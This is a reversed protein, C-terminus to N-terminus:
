FRYRYVVAGIVALLASGGTVGVAIAIAKKKNSHSSPSPTSPTMTFPPVDPVRTPSPTPASTSPPSIGFITLGSDAIYLMNSVVASGAPKRSRTQLYATVRPAAPTEVDVALVTADSVSVYAITGSVSVDVAAASTAYMGALVPGSTNTFFDIILLGSDTAVYTMNGEVALGNYGSWGGPTFENVVEPASEDAVNFMLVADDGTAMYCVTGVVEVARGEVTGLQRGVVKRTATDIVVLGENSAVYATGGSSSLAVGLVGPVSVAGANAPVNSSVDFVVVSNVTGVVMTKGAVAVDYADAVGDRITGLPTAGSTVDYLLLGINSAVYARSDQVAVHRFVAALTATAVPASPDSASIMQLGTDKGVIAVYGTVVMSFVPGELGLSGLLAQAGDESTNYIKLVYRTQTRSVVYLLEDETSLCIIETMATDYAAVQTPNSPDSVDLNVVTGDLGVLVTDNVGLAVHSYLGNTDNFTSLMRPNTPSSIDLILLSLGQAVYATDNTSIAIDYGGDLSHAGDISPTTPDAISIVALQDEQVAYLWDGSVALASVTAGVDVEGVKEPYAPQSVNVAWVTNNVGIYVVEGGAAVTTVANGSGVPLVGAVTDDSRNWVVLGTAGTAAYVFEGLEDTAMDYVANSSYNALLMDYSAAGAFLCIIIPHM